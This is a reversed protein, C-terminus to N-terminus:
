WQIGVGAWFLLENQSPNDSAYRGRANSFHHFEIGSLFSTGSGLPFEVGGGGGFTYNARSGEPPFRRQGRTYGGFLDVFAAVEGMEGPYYRFRAEADYAWTHSYPANRSRTTDYRTRNVGVGFAVRDEVFFYQAAGFGWNPMDAEGVWVLARGVIPDGNFARASFLRDGQRHIGGESPCSSGRCSGLLGAIAMAAVRAM